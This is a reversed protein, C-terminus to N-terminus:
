LSLGVWQWYGFYFIVILVVHIPLLVASLRLLDAPEFTEMGGEQFMLLAKSSVPFTQCYDM